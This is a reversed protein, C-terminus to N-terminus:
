HPTLVRICFNALSIGSFLGAKRMKQWEVSEVEAQLNGTELFSLRIFDANKESASPTAM